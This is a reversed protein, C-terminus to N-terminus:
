SSNGDDGKDDEEYDNIGVSYSLTKYRKSFSDVNVSLCV